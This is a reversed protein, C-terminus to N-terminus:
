EVVFEKLFYSYWDTTNIACQIRKQSKHDRKFRPHIRRNSGWLKKYYYVEKKWQQDYCRDNSVGRIWKKMEKYYNFKLLSNWKDKNIYLKYEEVINSKSNLWFGVVLYFDQKKNANIFIDGLDISSRFKITKIQYPINNCDYGDFSATYKSDEIIGNRKAYEHQYIFGHRQRENM